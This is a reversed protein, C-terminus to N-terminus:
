IQKFFCIHFRADHNPFYAVFQMNNIRSLPNSNSINTGFIHSKYHHIQDSSWFLSRFSGSLFKHHYSDFTSFASFSLYTRFMNIDIVELKSFLAATNAVLHAKALLRVM